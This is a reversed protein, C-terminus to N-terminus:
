QGEISRWRSKPGIVSTRSGVQRHQRGGLTGKHRPSQMRHGLITPGGATLQQGTQAFDNANGGGLFWARPRSNSLTSSKGEGLAKGRPPLSCLTLPGFAM